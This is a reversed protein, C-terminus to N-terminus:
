EPDSCNAGVKRLGEHGAGSRGSARKAGPDIRAEQSEAGPCSGANERNHQEDNVNNSWQTEAQEGGLGRHKREGREDAKLPRHPRLDIGTEDPRPDTCGGFQLISPRRSEGLEEAEHESSQRQSEECDADVDSAVAQRCEGEAHCGEVGGGPSHRPQLAYRSIRRRCDAQSRNSSIL